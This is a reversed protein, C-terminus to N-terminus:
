CLMLFCLLDRLGLMEEIILQGEKAVNKNHLVIDSRYPWSVSNFADM